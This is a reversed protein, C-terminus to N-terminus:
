PFQTFTVDCLFILGGSGKEASLDRGSCTARKMNKECKRGRWSDGEERERERKVRQRQPDREILTEGDKFHM